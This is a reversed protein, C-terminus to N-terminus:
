KTYIKGKKDFEYYRILIESLVEELKRLEKEARKSNFHGHSHPDMSNIINYIPEKWDSPLYGLRKYIKELISYVENLTSRLNKGRRLVKYCRELEKVIDPTLSRLFNERIEEEKQYRVIIYFFIFAFSLLIILISSPFLIFHPTYPFGIFYFFFDSFFTLLFITLSLVIKFLKM